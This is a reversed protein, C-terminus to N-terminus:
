GQFGLSAASYSYYADCLFQNHNHPISLALGSDHNANGTNAKPSYWQPTLTTLM